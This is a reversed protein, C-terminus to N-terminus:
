MAIYLLAIVLPLNDKQQSLLFILAFIILQDTSIGLMKSLGFIGEASFNDPRNSDEKPESQKQATSSPVNNFVTRSHMQRARRIADAKMKDFDDNSFTNQAM